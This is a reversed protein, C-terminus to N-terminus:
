TQPARLCSMSHCGRGKGEGKKGESGEGGLEKV